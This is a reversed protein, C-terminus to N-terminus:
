KPKDYNKPDPSDNIPIQNCDEDEDFTQPSPMPTGQHAFPNPRTQVPPAATRKFPNNISEKPPAASTPKPLPPARGRPQPVTHAGLTNAKFPKNIVLGPAQQKPVDSM